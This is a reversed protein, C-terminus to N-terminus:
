NRLNKMEKIDVEVAGVKLSAKIKLPVKNKDDSIWVKVPSDGNEFFNNDPLKPSMVLANIEGVKTKITERGLFTLEINHVEDDFFGAVPIIDGKQYSSYDITRLFYYGGVIDLIDNPVPFKEKEKLKRTKKDLRMVTAVDNQHDFNVMENKRYKGEQIYRYAKHPFISATDVYAGWNDRIRIGLDFLGVSNGYVDIKYCPRGNVTFYTDSVRMVAEAANLFGYHVRYTLEEGNEFSENPIYRYNNVQWAALTLVCLSLLIITKKM